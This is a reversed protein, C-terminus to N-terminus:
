RPPIQRFFEPDDLIGPFGLEQIRRQRRLAARTAQSEVEAEGRLGRRRVEAGRGQKALIRQGMRSAAAAEPNERVLLAQAQDLAAQIEERTAAPDDALIKAVTDAQAAFLASEFNDVPGSALEQETLLQENHFRLMELARQAQIDDLNNEATARLQIQLLDKEQEFAREGFQQDRLFKISAKTAADQAAFVQAERQQQINQSQLTQAADLRAQTEAPVVDAIQGAQFVDRGALAAEAGRREGTLFGRQKDQEAVKAEAVRRAEETVFEEGGLREGKQFAQTAGLRGLIDLQSRRRQQDEFNRQAEDQGGIFTEGATREGTTFTRGIGAQTAAERAAAEREGTEQGRALLSEGALFEQGGIREATSFERQAEAETARQRLDAIDIGANTLFSLLAQGSRRNLAENQFNFASQQGLVDAIRSQTGVGPFVPPAM